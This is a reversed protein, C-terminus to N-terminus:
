LLKGVFRKQMTNSAKDLIKYCKKWLEKYNILFTLSKYKENYDNLYRIMKPLLICILRTQEDYKYDMFYKFGKEVCTFKDSITIKDIDVANISIIYVKQFFLVGM